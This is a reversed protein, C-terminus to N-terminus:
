KDTEAHELIITFKNARAEKFLRMLFTKNVADILNDSCFKILIDDGMDSNISGVLKSSTLRIQVKYDFPKGVVKVNRLNTYLMM